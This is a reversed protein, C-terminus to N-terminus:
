VALQAGKVIEAPAHDGGMADVAVRIMDTDGKGQDGCFFPYGQQQVAPGIHVGTGRMQYLKCPHTRNVHFMYYTNVPGPNANDIDTGSVFADAEGAKVLNMGVVISSDKKKRITNVPPEGTEIVETATIPILLGRTPM